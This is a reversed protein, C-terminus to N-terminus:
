DPLREVRVEKALDMLQRADDADEPVISQLVLAFRSGIARLDVPISETPIEIAHEPRTANELREFLVRTLGSNSPHLVRAVERLDRRKM